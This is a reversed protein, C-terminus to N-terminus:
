LFSRLKSKHLFPLCLVNIFNVGTTSKMLMKGVRKEYSLTNKAGFNQVFASQAAKFNKGGFFTCFFTSSISV